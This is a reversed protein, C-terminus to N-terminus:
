PAAETKAKRREQAVRCNYGATYIKQGVEPSVGLEAWKKLRRETAKEGSCRGGRQALARHAEKDLLAFSM